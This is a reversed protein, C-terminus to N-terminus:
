SKEVQGFDLEIPTPRGFIAVSVKVKGKEHNVEEISGSFNQFPGDIVRVADGEEFDFRPKPKLAGETIRNTIKEIEAEPVPPPNAQDDGVFGMIKPTNKVLHWTEKNMEMKVFMYNPYLKRTTTKREGRVTEVVNEIPVFIQEFKDDMKHLKIREQLSNKAKNEFGAYTQVIYWRKAM